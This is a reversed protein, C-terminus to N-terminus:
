IRINRLVKLRREEAEKQRRLEERRNQEDRLVKQELNHKLVQTARPLWSKFHDIVQQIAQEPANIRALNDNFSFQQPAAGMVWSNAGGNQLASIWDRTVSRDLTLILTGNNWDAGILRPPEEALPVDIKDSKIVTGDIDSIRQLTVAEAGFREFLGKLEGISKPREDQNQKIMREVLIDLYGLEKSVAAISLFDTGHPVSGTFMENLMLGLAYIDAALTVARKPVRQEPAAYQFNALRQAPTTEVATALLDQSFRAIGFDAIALNSARKDYLINEPKLDRHIVNKLHAAEVGDLIQYYLKLVNRPAIKNNMLDRLNGDYRRMVYFPAPTKGHRTIGHDIVSVINAHRNQSLFAIENKFRRRKDDSAQSLVKVAVQTGDSAKGGFVRGAGGEGILEELVYTDFTTELTMADKLKTM